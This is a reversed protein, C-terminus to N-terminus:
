GHVLNSSFRLFKTSMRVSPRVCRSSRFFYLLSFRTVIKSSCAITIYQLAPPITSTKTCFFIYKNEAFDSFFIAVLAARKQSLYSFIRQRSPSQRLGWQPLKFHEWLGRATNLPGVELHLLVASFPFSPSPLSLSDRICM